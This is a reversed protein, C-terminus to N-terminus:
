LGPSTSLRHCAASSSACFRAASRFAPPSVTQHSPPTRAILLAPALSLRVHRRVRDSGSGSSRRKLAGARDGGAPRGGRLRRGGGTDRLARAVREPEPGRLVGEDHPWIMYGVRTTTGRATTSISFWLNPHSTVPMLQRLVPQAYAAALLAHVRPFRNMPPMHIGDLKLCWALEVAGLPEREYALAWPRFEICRAQEKTEELGTGGTWAVAARVVEALEATRGGALRKGNSQLYVWFARRHEDAPHVTVRRGLEADVYVAIRSWQGDPEPLVVGIGEAARGLMEHFTGAGWNSEGSGVGFSMGGTHRRACRRDWDVLHRDERSRALRGPLEAGVAVHDRIVSLAHNITRPAYGASPYRKGTTPNVRGPAPRGPRRKSPKRAHQMWLVFDRVEAPQARRWPVDVAALFRWWRLLDIGYSRHSLPSCDCARMNRLFANM